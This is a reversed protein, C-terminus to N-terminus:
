LSFGGLWFTDGCQSRLSLNPGSYYFYIWIVASPFWFWFAPLSPYQIFYLTGSAIWLPHLAREAFAHIYCDIFDM